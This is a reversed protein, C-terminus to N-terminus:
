DTLFDPWRERLEFSRRAARGAQRAASSRDIMLPEHEGRHRADAATKSYLEIAVLGLSDAARSTASSPMRKWRQALPPRGVRRLRWAQGRRGEFKFRHRQYMRLATNVMIRRIWGEFSGDGRYNPLNEFVSLQGQLIDAADSARSAYRLCVAYMRGAFRDYLM